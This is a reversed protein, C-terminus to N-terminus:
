VVKVCILQHEQEHELKNGHVKHGRMFKFYRIMHQIISLIIQWSFVCCFKDNIEQYPRSVAFQFSLESPLHAHVDIAIKDVQYISKTIHAHIM